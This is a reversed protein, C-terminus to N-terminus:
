IKLIDYFLSSDCTKKLTPRTVPVVFDNKRLWISTNEFKLFVCPQMIILKDSSHCANM